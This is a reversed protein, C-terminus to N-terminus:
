PGRGPRVWVSAQEDSYARTWAPNEDLWEAFPHDTNFLVHDIEGHDLLMQPNARLSIADAYARIPADGYIDSRGDIYVLTGPREFGLYGGWAYTNFPRDGPENAVIWDVARVPMHEGIASRQVAPSVRAMTIGVGVAALIGALALNVSAAAGRRPPRAMREVRPALQRGLDTEAIVPTLTFAVIALGIPGVVLLFRAATAGMVTLGVLVLADAARMRRWGLALAPVVGLVVYSVFLQGPLTAIDPPSWEALFDRHAAISATELPYLYLAPGSPNVSIVAASAVLAAALWGLQRWALPEPAVSRRLVLIRDIAEGVIVAGGLLFLLLWGAHLNAWAVAIIPLWGLVLQRHRALYHWCVVLAAAALPLDIVQIRVGLVPGAVTIGATLWLLRSLWSTGPRRLGIGRWLIYAALMVLLSFGVSLATPGLEGMRYTAAVVANSLWDQSTWPLGNGAISWTDTSPVRGTNLVEEGARLHWWIDGDILPIAPRPLWVMFAIAVVGVAATSLGGVSHRFTM